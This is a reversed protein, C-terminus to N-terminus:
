RRFIKQFLEKAPIVVKQLSAGVRGKGAPMLHYFEKEGGRGVIVIPLPLEAQRIEMPSKM